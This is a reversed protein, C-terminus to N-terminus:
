TEELHTQHEGYDFQIWDKDELWQVIAPLFILSSLLTLGIGIVALEGISILGPHDTFLLGSFGQMTTVSAISIHQGTSSLVNWMSNKGEERYRSALHVGSDEGIGLIAPLVVLNYFNFHLGFVLMIGFTWLLGVLLPSLAILTWRVSRFAFYMFLVVMIFTAIVMYPSERLMLELMAASVISTSAAYYTKGGAEIKGIDHRFAISNRGNALSINPNPYIIVFNGIEGNKTMFEEKLYNPIQALTLPKRTQAAQRLRALQVDKKNKILPDDLLHRIGAIKKLKETKQKETSPIREQIAEVDYILTDKKMKNRLVKLIQDIDRASDAIIYAPNRKHSGYVGHTLRNFAEFKPYTPELQGFDYQFHLNPSEILVVVSVLLGVLVIARAYPFRHPKQGVFGEKVNKNVLILGYREFLVIIAPLIFVMCLLSLLIGNGSILGFESFGKFQALVLVYLSVATTFASTMIAGGTYEYTHLLAFEVTEGESRIELYRAYFHIGYDIGMGFLIVFLVSTMTNLRGLTFYAIGFTYCLGIVLPIGIILLPFPARWIHSWLNHIQEEEAGRKYNWYKKFFFYLMVLLLVSTIGSLFSRRVDHIISDLQEVHRQLRGGAMVVMGKNYNKPHMAVILSDVSKFMDRLYQTNSKSGNPYFSLIMVTSDTSIPYERPILSEYTKVFHHLGSSDSSTSDEDGGLDVYFPNAKLKAKRLEDQLYKKIEGLEQNTALYLANDKLIKTDKKFEYRKFFPAQINTSYLQMAKPIFAVAFRKNDYFSPSKIAVSLPEEGGVSNQLNDLAKVSPYSSPLLDAINTDIKLHLAFYGCFAALAVAVSLVLYPHTYSKRFLPKFFNLLKEM